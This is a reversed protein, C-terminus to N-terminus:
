HVYAVLRGPRNRRAGMSSGSWGRVPCIKRRRFQWGREEYLGISASRDRILEDVGATIAEPPLTPNLRQLAARLRAILVVEGSAERVLTGAPGFVEEMASVTQWGLEAFLGVAPQEVLQDETYPHPM